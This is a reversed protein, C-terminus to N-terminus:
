LKITTEAPKKDRLLHKVKHKWALRADEPSMLQENSESEKRERDREIMEHITPLMFDGPKTLASKETINVNYVASAIQASRLDDREELFPSLRNFEMWAWFQELTLKSIFGNPGEM